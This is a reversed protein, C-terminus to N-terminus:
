EEGLLSPGCLQRILQEIDQSQSQQLADRALDQADKWFLQEIVKRVNPLSTTSMSLEDIGLGILLASYLSSGAMEGCLAVKKGAAHACDITHKIMRVISPHLPQYLWEVQENSRDLALTYQVLDNTGISFFDAEKALHDAVMVASPMEIMIGVPLNRQFPLNRNDLEEQCEQLIEKAKRLESVGSVMPFMLRANGYVSARLIGRLQTKFLTKEQFCLRLSRLGLAPNIEASFPLMGLRNLLFPPLKDTGLDFTRFTVPRSGMKQLVEKAHLFHEEETPDYIRDLFLFETRYLGVGQVGQQLAMDIDQPLEVNALLPVERADKTKAPHSERPVLSTQSTKTQKEVLLKEEQTPNICVQGQTGNVILWDENNIQEVAKGLGVVVPLGFARALIVMHSTRGGTATVVAVVHGQRLHILDTPLLEYAIVIAQDPPILPSSVEQGLLNYLIQEGVFGVDNRRERFYEVTIADFRKKIDEMTKHLAWEANMGEELIRARTPELLHEDHLILRYADVIGVNSALSGTQQFNEKLKALQVDCLAVAQELRRIEQPAESVELHRRPIKIRRRDMVFARGMVMGPSAAIGRIWRQDPTADNQSM